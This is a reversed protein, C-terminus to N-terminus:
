ACGSLRSARTPDPFKCIPSQWGPFSLLHWLIPTQPQRRRGEGQRQNTQQRQFVNNHRPKPIVTSLLTAAPLILILAGKAICVHPLIDLSVLILTYTRPIFLVSFCSRTRLSSAEKTPHQLKKGQDDTAYRGKPFKIYTVRAVPSPAQGGEVQPDQSQKRELKVKGM